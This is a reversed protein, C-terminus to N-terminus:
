KFFLSFFICKAWSRLIKLQKQLKSRSRKEGSVERRESELNSNNENVPPHYIFEDIYFDKIIGCQHIYKWSDARYTGSNKTLELLQQSMLNNMLYCCARRIKRQNWNVRRFKRCGVKVYNFFSVGIVPYDHLDKMGGLLYLNDKKLKEYENINLSKLFDKFRYDVIVDDELVIAWEYQREVIDKYVFQHSLTCAIEGDTMVNGLGSFRMKNILEANRGDKADIADFFQFDIGLNSFNFQINERREKDRLLSIVYIPIKM